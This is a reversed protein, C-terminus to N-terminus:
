AFSERLADAVEWNRFELLYGNVGMHKFTKDFLLGTVAELRAGKSKRWGSLLVIIDSKKVLDLDKAILEWYKKGYQDRLTEATDKPDEFDFPTHVEYRPYNKRIAEAAAYFNGKNGLPLGTIPGSIYVKGSAHIM